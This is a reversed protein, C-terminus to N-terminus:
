DISVFSVFRRKKYVYSLGGKEFIVAVIADNAYTTKKDTNYNYGRSGKKALMIYEGGPEKIIRMRYGNTRRLFIVLLNGSGVARDEANVAHGRRILAAYDRRGDGDFDGSVIVPSANSLYEKVYQQVEPSVESFRWGPFRRNLLVLVQSPLRRSQSQTAFCTLDFSTCLLLIILFRM